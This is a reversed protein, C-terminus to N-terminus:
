DHTYWNGAIGNHLRHRLRFRYTSGPNLDDFTYTQAYSTTHRINIWSYVSPQPEQRVDLELETFYNGSSTWSVKHSTINGGPGSPINEHTVGQPAPPATTQETYRQTIHSYGWATAAAAHRSWVRKLLWINPRAQTPTPPSDATNAPRYDIDTQQATTQGSLSPLDGVSGEEARYYTEQLLRNPDRVTIPLDKILTQNGRSAKWTLVFTGVQTPTGTIRGTTTSSLTLGSPLAGYLIEHTTAQDATPLQLPNSTDIAEDVTLDYINQTGWTLDDRPTIFVTIPQRATTQGDTAKWVFSAELPHATVAPVNTETDAVMSVRRNAAATSVTLWNPVSTAEYTITGAGGTAQPLQPSTPSLTRTGTQASISTDGQGFTIPAADDSIVIFVPISAFRDTDDPDTAKWALQYTQATDQAITGNIQRDASVLSLGSPLTGSLAYTPTDHGTAEPLQISVTDGETSNQSVAPVAFQMRGTTDAVATTTFTTSQSDDWTKAEDLINVHRVQVWYQTEETLGSLGHQYAQDGGSVTIPSGVINEGTTEGTGYRLETHKHGTYAGPIWVVLATTPTISPVALGNVDTPDVALLEITEEESWTGHQRDDPNSQNTIYRARFTLVKGKFSPHALQYTLQNISRLYSTTDDYDHDTADTHWDIELLYRYDPDIADITLTIVEVLSDAYPAEREAATINPILIDATEIEELEADDPDDDYDSYLLQEYIDEEPQEYASILLGEQISLTIQDIIFVKDDIGASPLNVLLDMGEKWTLRESTRKIPLLVQRRTGQLKNQIAMIQQAAYYDSLYTIRPIREIFRQNDEARLHENTVLPLQVPRNFQSQVCATMTGQVANRRQNNSINSTVEPARWLDEEEIHRADPTDTKHEGPALYLKNDHFAVQGGTITELVELLRIPSEDELIVGAFSMANIDYTRETVTSGEIFAVRTTHQYDNCRSEAAAQATADLITRNLGWLKTALYALVRAPNGSSPDDNPDTTGDAATLHRLGKYEFSITPVSTIGTRKKSQSNYSNGRIGEESYNLIVHAWTIGTLKHDFGWQDSYDPYDDSDQAMWERLERGRTINSQSARNWYVRIAGAHPGSAPEYHDRHSGTAPRRKVLLIREGNIFIILGQTITTGPVVTAYVSNVGAPITAAGVDVSERLSPEPLDGEALAIVLDCRPSVKKGDESKKHFAAMVTGGDRVWTGIPHRAPPNNNWQASLPDEIRRDKGSLVARRSFLRTLLRSGIVIGAQIGVQVLVSSGATAVAATGQAAVTATAQTM